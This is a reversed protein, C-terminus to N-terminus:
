LAPLPWRCARVFFGTSMFARLVALVFAPSDPTVYLINEVTGPNAAAWALTLAFMAMIVPGPRVLVMWHQRERIM